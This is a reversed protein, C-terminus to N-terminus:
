PIGSIISFILIIFALMFLAIWFIGYSKAVLKLNPEDSHGFDPSFRGSKKGEASLGSGHCKACPTGFLLLNRIYFGRGACVECYGYRQRYGRLGNHRLESLWLPSYLVPQFCIVFALPGTIFAFILATWGYAAHSIQQGGTCYLEPSGAAFQQIDSKFGFAGPGTLNLASSIEGLYRIPYYLLYAAFNLPTYRPIVNVDQNFSTLINVVIFFALGLLVLAEIAGGLAQDIRKWSAYREQKELWSHIKENLEYKKVFYVGGAHISTFSFLWLGLFTNVRDCPTVNVEASAYHAIVTALALAWFFGWIKGFARTLFGDTYGTYLGRTIVYLPVIWFLVVLEFYRGITTM